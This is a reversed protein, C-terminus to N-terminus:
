LSIVEGNALLCLYTATVPKDLISELARRYLHLQGQYKEKMKEGAATGYRAVQDTKYDFLIVKEGMELYGDIIGHVLIKDDAAQDLDSFIKEAKLM